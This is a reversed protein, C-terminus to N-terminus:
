DHLPGEKKLRYKNSLYRARARGVYFFSQCTELVLNDTPEINFRLKLFSRVKTKYEETFTMAGYPHLVFRKWCM